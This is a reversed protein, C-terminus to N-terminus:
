DGNADIERSKTGYDRRAAKTLEQVVDKGHQEWMALNNQAYHLLENSSVGFVGCEKLKEALPIIYYKFFGIEGEFWFSSPDKEARGNLYALYMERFLNENWKRFVEWHQMTHSIDSAQMLFEIVITAKRDRNEEDAVADKHFAKEWRDTRSAKLDRCAIDTAMVANVLVQRFRKLEDQTGCITRVLQQYSPDMLLDWAMDLSQQESISRNAYIKATRSQEKVLQANPVGPHDLDHSCCSVVCHTLWTGM